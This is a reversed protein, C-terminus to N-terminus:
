VHPNKIESEITNNQIAQIPQLERTKIKNEV